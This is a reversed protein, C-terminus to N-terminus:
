KHKPNCAPKEAPQCDGGDNKPKCGTKDPNCPNAARPIAAVLQRMTTSALIEALSQEQVSGATMWRSMVCPRVGGDPLVAAVGDGCHGCLEAHGGAGARGLHRRRDIGINTVGIRELMATAEDIRQGDLVHVMGVRLPIGHLIAM